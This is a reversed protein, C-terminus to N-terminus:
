TENHIENYARTGWIGVMDLAPYIAKGLETLSYEVRPPVENYQKRVIIKQKELEQLNKSLMFSSIGKLRRQLENFRIVEQQNLEWTIQIKWKGNLISLAYKVPCEEM